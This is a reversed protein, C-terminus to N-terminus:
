MLINYRNRIKSDAAKSLYSPRHEALISRATERAVTWADVKGKQRWTQPDDRNALKPYYFDREMAQM